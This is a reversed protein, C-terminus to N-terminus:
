IILCMLFRSFSQWGRVALASMSFNGQEPSIGAEPASLNQTSGWGSSLTQPWCDPFGTIFPALYGQRSRWEGREWPTLAGLQPSGVMGVKSPDPQASCFCWLMGRSKPGFLALGTHWVWKGLPKPILINLPRGQEWCLYISKYVFWFFICLYSHFLGRFKLKIEM